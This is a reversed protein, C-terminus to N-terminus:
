HAKGWPLKYSKACTPGYGVATSKEDELGKNCFCCRGTIKGYKAATEAPHRAMERLLYTLEDKLANEVSRVPTFTGDPSVKGAYGVSSPVKVYIYGPNKSHASARSIAVDAGSPTQLTIAPYKLKQAATEFMTILGALSGVVEPEPATFDPIGQAIDALKDVWEWQRESLAGKRKLQDLLSKAFGTKSEPLGGIHSKLTEAREILHQM